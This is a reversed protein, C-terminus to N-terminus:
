LHGGDGSRVKGVARDGFAFAHIVNRRLYNSNSWDEKKPKTVVYLMCMEEDWGLQVLWELTLKPDCRLMLDWLSSWGAFTLHGNENMRCNAPFGPNM